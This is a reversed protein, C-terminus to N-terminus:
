ADTRLAVIPDIRAARRAPLYTAALAVVGLVLSVAAYTTPDTAKVGFLLTSMVRTLALATVVGVALGAGVLKLGHSVFLRRVDSAQAGLAMRVGIERTRQAAIYAIVGYIGVIGLLLAVGAAIALMTLAFSTQAMSSRHIDALSRANAVPLNPNVKWVAQQLERMFTPSKMRESRVAFALTRSVFAEEWFQDMALPWYVTLPAPQNVGSDRDDGVVGVIERWPNNPTNRIRRGLAAQASGFHERALNESVVVVKQRQYADGWTLLRGAVLRNGM